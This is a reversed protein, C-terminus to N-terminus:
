RSFLKYMIPLLTIPRYNGPLQPDGKKYLVTVLSKNWSSPHKNAQHLVETFLDAICQLLLDSGIQVMEIVLGKEDAAKGRGMQKLQAKLEEVVVPEVQHHSNSKLNNRSERRSAYLTSYFEAFVDAIDQPNTVKTGNVTQM